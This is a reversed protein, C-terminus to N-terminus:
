RLERRDRGEIARSRSGGLLRRAIRGAVTRRRRTTDDGVAGYPGYSVVGGAEMLALETEVYTSVQEIAAQDGAELRRKRHVVCIRDNPARDRYGERFYIMTYALLGNPGYETTQVYGLRRKSSPHSDPWQVIRDNPQLQTADIYLTEFDTLQEM